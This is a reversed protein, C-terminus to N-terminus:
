AFWISDGKVVSHKLFKKDDHAPLDTRNPARRSEQRALAPPGVRRGATLINSAEYSRRTKPRALRPTLKELHEIARKLRAGDRVIGVENWMLEQMERVLEELGADVPGNSYAVRPKSRAKAPRRGLEDRMKRGARAGFVLGELLSNSALRNAGHVGTTAAEGAAYLAPLSTRGQLDTRVGGMSYHAAPRIPILDTTIDINYQFCTSYIRPFRAKVHSAKLHTLDLYVVPDKAPSVELEHLIARAVVDRPALEGMPHYKPMFRHMELNRLYAGEGRLAESLLFRPAKKLYLATHHFQIFEMDSIEAGAHLAMAVGDGTAVAPNTTNRYLQGLGGTALLVASAAMEDPIGKDNILSIGCVKGNHLRLETSFEFECVSINKLTKAKAYLARLIEQGTSDGHAHLIRNRSHAGERTFALKTGNRDFETGWQILEEIREPGEEVLIKVAEVNCLGDGASLTDQLHLSVEDEDSLAAAIGGQALQTASDTVERKALVVVRGAQALEIAARLGAIGAGIVLFDTEAPACEM